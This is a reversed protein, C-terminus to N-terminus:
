MYVNPLAEFSDNPPCIEWQLEAVGMNQSVHYMRLFQWSNVSKSSKKMEICFFIVYSFRIMNPGGSSHFYIACALSYLVVWLTGGLKHAKLNRNSRARLRAEPM